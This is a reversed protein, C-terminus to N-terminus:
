HRIESLCVTDPGLGHELGYRVLAALNPLQLRELIRRKHTSITKVSLHLSNAIETPREGAVLRRMVDLERNSLDAHREPEAGGSLKLVMREAIGTSVYTAGDHIKRVACALEDSACDKTLYGNAGAKFARM